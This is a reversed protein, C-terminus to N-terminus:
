ATFHKISRILEPQRHRAATLAIVLMATLSLAAHIAVQELGRVRLSGLMLWEKARSFLREVSMRRRFLEVLRRAGRVVFDKGVRLAERVRSDRRVPIVPEAGYAEAAARVKASSYQADALVARFEVGLGHVRELLPKFYVKDNENCPAVTFALPMESSACCATHVRYGLIFGRKGRGVRADADSRGTKNDHSRQSYAKLHTSDVAVVEGKVVKSELLRRLLNNFIRHYTEEELRHRFHTFLSHSPTGKRFGCARATKRDRKLRLALRRDSPIRLLHKLLQAKLMSLPNYPRRGPGRQHYLSRLMRHLPRSNISDLVQKIKVKKEL